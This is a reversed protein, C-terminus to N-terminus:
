RAPRLFYTKEEERAIQARQRRHWQRRRGKSATTVLPCELHQRIHHFVALLREWVEALGRGAGVHDGALRGDPVDKRDMEENKVGHGKGRRWGSRRQYEQRRWVSERKEALRIKV